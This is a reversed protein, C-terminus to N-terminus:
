FATFLSAQVNLANGEARQSPNASSPGFYSAQSPNATYNLGLTLYVGPRINALYGATVSWTEPKGYTGLAHLTNLNDVLYPSNV